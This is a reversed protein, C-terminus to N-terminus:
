PTVELQGLIAEFVAVAARDEIDLCTLLVVRDGARFVAARRAFQQGTRPQEFLLAPVREKMALWPMRTTDGTRLFPLTAAVFADLALRKPNKFVGLEVLVRDRGSITVTHALQTATAEPFHRSEVLAQTLPVPFALRAAPEVHKRFSLADWTLPDEVGGGGSLVVALVLGTTLTMRPM